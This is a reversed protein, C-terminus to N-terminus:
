SALRCCHRPYAADSSSTSAPSVPNSCRNNELHSRGRRVILVGGLSVLGLFGMVLLRVPDAGHGLGILAALAAGAIVTALSAEANRNALFRGNVRRWEADHLRERLRAIKSSFTLKKM